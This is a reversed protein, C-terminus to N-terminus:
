VECGKRFKNLQRIIALAKQPSDFYVVERAKDRLAEMRKDHACAAKRQRKDWSELLRRASRVAAPEPESNRSAMEYRSPIRSLLFKQADTLKSPPIGNNRAM